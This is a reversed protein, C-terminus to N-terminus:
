VTFFSSVENHKADTSAKRGKAKTEACSLGSSAFAAGASPFASFAVFCPRQSPITVLLLLSLDVSVTRLRPELTSFVTAYSLEVLNVLWSCPLLFTLSMSALWILSLSRTIQTPVQSLSPTSWAVRMELRSVGYLKAKRQLKVALVACAKARSFGVSSTSVSARGM